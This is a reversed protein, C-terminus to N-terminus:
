RTGRLFVGEVACYYLMKLSFGGGAGRPLVVHGRALAPERAHHFTLGRTRAALARPSRTRFGISAPRPNRPSAPCRESAFGSMMGFHLRVGNRFSAPCGGSADAANARRALSEPMLGERGDVLPAHIGALLSSVM